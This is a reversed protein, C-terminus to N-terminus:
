AKENEEGGIPKIHLKEATDAPIPNDRCENCGRDACEENSVAGFMRPCINISADPFKDSQWEEWSPYRPEPHESAWDMVAAEVKAIDLKRTVQFPCYIDAKDAIERLTCNDCEDHAKCMRKAQRMVTQFEAM